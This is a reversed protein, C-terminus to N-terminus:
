DEEKEEEKEEEGMTEDPSPEMPNLITEIEKACKDVFEMEFSRESKLVEFLFPLKTHINMVQNLRQSLQRNQMMLQNCYDNLQEYSIKEKNEM